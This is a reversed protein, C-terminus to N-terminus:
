SRTLMWAMDIFEVPRGACPAVHRGTAAFGCREYVTRARVNFAAVMLTVRRVEPRLARLRELCARTFAEGAGRGTLDPRMGLGLEAADGSFEATFFGALNGQDGTAAEIIEPWQDPTLFEELDEPDATMDYFDYPPPYAWDQAITRARDPTMRDFSWHTEM